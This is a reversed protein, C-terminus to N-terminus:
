SGPTMYSGDPNRRIGYRLTDPSLGTVDCARAFEVVDFNPDAHGLVQATVWMVNVKVWHADDPSLVQASRKTDADRRHGARDLRWPADSWDHNKIEEAFERALRSLAM